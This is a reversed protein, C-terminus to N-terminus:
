NTRNGTIMPEYRTKIPDGILRVQANNDIGADRLTRDKMQQLERGRFYLKQRQVPVTTIRELEEMLDTIRLNNSSRLILVHRDSGHFVEIKLVEQNASNQTLDNNSNTNDMRRPSTDNQGGGGGTSQSGDGYFSSPAQQRTSYYENPPPQPQQQQQQQNNSGPGRYWLSIFANNVVGLSDLPADPPYQTLPMGNYTINQDLIPINFRQQLEVQLDYLTIPHPRGIALGEVRDGLGIQLNLVFTPAVPAATNPNTLQQYYNNARPSAGFQQQQQQQDYMTPYNSYPQQQQQQQYQPYFQQQQQQQQYIDNSSSYQQDSTAYSRVERRRNQQAQDDARCVRMQHNNEIGLTELLENPTDCINRGKWYLIIQDVPMRFVKSADEQVDRVRLDYNRKVVFTQRDSGYAAELKIVKRDQRRAMKQVENEHTTKDTDPPDYLKHWIRDNQLNALPDMNNSRSFTSHSPAYSSQNGTTRQNHRGTNDRTTRHHKNSDTVEHEYTYDYNSGM